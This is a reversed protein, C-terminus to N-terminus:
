VASRTEEFILGLYELLKEKTWAHVEISQATRGEGQWEGDSTYTVGDAKAREAIRAVAFPKTSTVKIAYVRKRPGVVFNLGNHDFAFWPELNNVDQYYQNPIEKRQVPKGVLTQIEAFRCGWYEDHRVRIPDRPIKVVACAAHEIETWSEAGRAFVRLSAPLQPPLPAKFRTWAERRLKETEPGAVDRVAQPLDYWSANDALGHKVRLKAFCWESENFLREEEKRCRAEHTRWSALLPGNLYKMDADSFDGVHESPFFVHQGVGYGDLMLVPRSCYGCRFNQSCLSGGFSGGGGVFESGHAGCVCDPLEEKLM